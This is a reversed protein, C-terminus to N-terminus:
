KLGTFDKNLEEEDWSHGTYIWGTKSSEKWPQKSDSLVLGVGEGEYAKVMTEEPVMNLLEKLKKVTIM